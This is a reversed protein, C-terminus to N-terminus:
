ESVEGIREAAYAAELRRRARHLRVRVTNADVHLLVAIEAPELGEWASLALLEQDDDSLEALAARVDHVHDPSGPGRDVADDPHSLVALRRLLHGRRRAGRRQNALVGAATAYLWILAERGTPLDARRRWAVLFVEAVVDDADSRTETRRIAYALVSFYWADYALRFREESATRTTRRVM